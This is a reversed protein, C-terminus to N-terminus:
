VLRVAVIPGVPVGGDRAALRLAHDIFGRPNLGPHRWRVGVNGKHIRGGVRGPTTDPRPAERLAIRGPAGPYSAPVDVEHLLGRKMRRVKKRQGIRAVRRFILVQIRGGGADRVEAKPNARRLEGHPDDAWIPITKGQLSKMTFPRIGAEQYWVYDDLWHIGFFGLGYVAILRRASRGTAKPSNKYAYALAMMAINAADEALLGPVEMVLRDPIDRRLVTEMKGAM